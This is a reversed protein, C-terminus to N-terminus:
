SEVSNRAIEGNPDVVPAGPTCSTSGPACYTYASTFDFAGPNATGLGIWSPDPLNYGQGVGSLTKNAFQTNGPRLGRTGEYNFFFFMKNKAHPVPIPGGINGGFQNFRLFNARPSGFTPANFGSQRNFEYLTGHLRQTGSKTNIAIFVGPNRGYEAAFNGTQVKFEGVADMSLQTFQGDNAGVDTNIAGDLFVNNASGRLGNIHMQDTNNFQLQFDSQNNSTVGPLTKMLSQFDRGNLLTETVQKSDIVSSHDATATEVLPPTAEVTLTETAAGVVTSVLGLDLTQYPDLHVDNRRLEKMGAAKVIVAYIGPQLPQLLFLGDAGSKTEHAVTGKEQDLAQVTAGAIVAGAPDVVTGQISGSNQAVLPAALVFALVLIILISSRFNM